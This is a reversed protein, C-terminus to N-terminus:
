KWIYRRLRTHKELIDPVLVTNAAQERGRRNHGNFWRLRVNATARQDTVTEEDSKRSM